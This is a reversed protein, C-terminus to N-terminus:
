STKPADPESAPAPAATGGAKDVEAVAKLMEEFAKEKASKAGTARIRDAAVQNKTPTMAGMTEWRDATLLQDSYIAQRNKAEDKWQSTHRDTISQRVALKSADLSDQARARREAVGKMQDRSAYGRAREYASNAEMSEVIAGRNQQLTKMQADVQKNHEKDGTKSSELLRLKDDISAVEKNIVHYSGQIAGTTAALEAELKARSEPTLTRDTALQKEKAARDTMQNQLTVLVEVKDKAAAKKNKLEEYRKTDVARGAKKDADLKSLEREIPDHERRADALKSDMVDEGTRDRAEGYTDDVKRLEKERDDLQTSAPRSQGIRKYTEEREKIQDDLKKKYGGKAGEGLFVKKGLGNVNRADFSSKAVGAFSRQTLGALKGRFGGRAEAEALAKSEAGKNSWRGITNRGTAAVAGVTAAGVGAGFGLGADRALGRGTSMVAAAGYAGLNKAVMLSAILFGIITVIYMLIAMSGMNGSAAGSLSTLDNSAFYRSTMSYTLKWSIWFMLFMAPAFFSQSLLSNWWRSGAGSIRTVWAVFAVPSMILLFVLIVFRGILLLAVAGFVFTMIAFLLSGLAGIFIIRKQIDDVAPGTLGVTGQTYSMISMLKLQSWWAGALGDGICKSTGFNAAAIQQGCESADLDPRAQKMLLTYIETAALNSVDIIVKTFLMSFNVFIAALIVKFLLTKYDYRSIGMITAIGIFITLFVLFVNTIDRLVIWADVIGPMEGVLQGMGVVLEAVAFNMLVAVLGAFWAMVFMIGYSAWAMCGWLISGGGGDFCGFKPAETTAATEPDLAKIPPSGQALAEGAPALVALGATLVLGLMVLRAMAKHTFTFHLM